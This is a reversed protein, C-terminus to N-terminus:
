IEKDNFQLLTSAIHVTHMVLIATGTYKSSHYSFVINVPPSHMLYIYDKLYGKTRQHQHLLM